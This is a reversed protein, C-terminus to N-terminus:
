HRIWPLPIAMPTGGGGGLGRFVVFHKAFHMCYKQLKCLQRPPPPPPLMCEFDTYRVTYLPIRFQEVEKLINSRGM